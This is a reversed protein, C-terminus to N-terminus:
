MLQSRSQPIPLFFHPISIAENSNSKKAKYRAIIYLPFYFFNGINTFPAYREALWKTLFVKTLCGATIVPFCTLSASFLHNPDKEKKFLFELDLSIVDTM